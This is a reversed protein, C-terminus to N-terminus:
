HGKSVYIRFCCCESCDQHASRSRRGSAKTVALVLRHHTWLNRRNGACCCCRCRRRLNNGCCCFCDHLSSECCCPYSHHSCGFRFYCTQLCVHFPVAPTKHIDRPTGLNHTVSYESVVGLLVRLYHWTKQCFPCLGLGALSANDSFCLYASGYDVRSHVIHYPSQGVLVWYSDVTPFFAPANVRVRLLTRCNAPIHISLYCGRGLRRSVLVLQM